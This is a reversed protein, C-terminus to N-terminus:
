QKTWLRGNLVYTGAAKGQNKWFNLFGAPFKEFNSEHMNEPVTVRTLADASFAGSVGRSRTRHEALSDPLVIATLPNQSFAGSAIYTIGNPFTLETFNNSRFAGEKIEVLGKGWTIDSLWCNSFAAVGIETIEDPFVLVTLSRNNSFGFDPITKLGKGLIVSTLPNGEFANDGIGTVTDPIVVSHLGKGKFVEQAIKTVTIGSITAPIIVNQAAGSYKTIRLTGDSLQLIDFDDESASLKAEVDSLNRVFGAGIIIYTGAKKGESAYSGELNSFPAEDSRSFAGDISVNDPLTVSTLQNGSFADLNIEKVSNPITVSTLQNNDFAQRGISTVGNPITVRILQKNRFVGGQISTVPKGGITAPIVIEKGTGSYGTITGNRFQFDSERQAFLPLSLTALLVVVASYSRKM